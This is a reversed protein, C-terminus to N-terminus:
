IFKSPPHHSVQEAVFYVRGEPGPSVEDDDNDNLLPDDPSLLQQTTHQPSSTTTSPTGDMSCVFYEGLIPNYPKKAVGSQFNYTKILYTYDNSYVALALAHQPIHWIGYKCYLDTKSYQKLFDRIFTEVFIVM